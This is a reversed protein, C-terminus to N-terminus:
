FMDEICLDGEGTVCQLFLRCYQNSSTRHTVCCCLVLHPPDYLVHVSLAFGYDKSIIPASHVHPTKGAAGYETKHLILM